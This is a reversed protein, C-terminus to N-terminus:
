FERAHKKNYAFIDGVMKWCRGNGLAHWLQRDNNLFIHEDSIEHIGLIVFLSELLIVLMQADWTVYPSREFPNSGETGPLVDNWSDLLYQYLAEIRIDDRKKTRDFYHQLLESQVSHHSGVGYLDRSIGLKGRYAMFPLARILYEEEQKMYTELLFFDGRTLWFVMSERREYKTLKAQFEHEAHELLERVASLFVAAPRCGDVSVTVKIYMPGIDYRWSDKMAKVYYWYSDTYSEIDVSRWRDKAAEKLADWESREQSNLLIDHDERVAQMTNYLKQEPNRTYVDYLAKIVETLNDYQANHPLQPLIRIGAFPTPLIIDPPLPAAYDEIHQRIEEERKIQDQHKKRLLWERKQEIKLALAESPVWKKMGLPCGKMCEGTSRASKTRDHMGNDMPCSVNDSDQVGCACSDANQRKSPPIAAVANRLKRITGIPYLVGPQKPRDSSNWYVFRELVYQYEEAIKRRSEPSDLYAEFGHIGHDSCYTQIQGPTLMMYRRNFHDFASEAFVDEQCNYFEEDEWKNAVSKELDIEGTIAFYETYHNLQHPMWDKCFSLMNDRYGNRRSVTLLNTYDDMLVVPRIETGNEYRRLSYLIAYLSNLLDKKIATGELIRLTGEMDYSEDLLKDAHPLYAEAMVRGFQLLASEYDPADFDSFSITIVPFRNMRGYFSKSKECILSDFLEKSHLNEDFYYQLMSLITSKGCGKEGYFVAGIHTLGDLWGTTDIFVSSNELLDKTQPFMKFTCKESIANADRLETNLKTAPM